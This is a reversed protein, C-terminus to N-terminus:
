QCHDALAVLLAADVQLRRQNLEDPTVADLLFYRVSEEGAALAPVQRGAADTVPDLIVRGLGPDGTGDARMGQAM